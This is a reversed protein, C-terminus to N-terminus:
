KFFVMHVGMIMLLIGFAKKLSAEPIAQVYHAGLYAGFLCGVAVFVAMKVHVHGESWYRLASLIYIPPIMVALSTGQAQHQTLGFAMVFVPVMFFGGGIGFAGGLMGTILGVFLYQIIM